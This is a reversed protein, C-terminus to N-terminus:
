IGPSRRSGRSNATRTESRRSRSTPGSRRGTPGSEGGKTRLRVAAHLRRSTTRRFAPRRDVDTYFTSFHTGLIEDAEYGKIREAGSNWTRVRGEPGLMFIAYEDTADVLTRFQEDSQRGVETTEREDVSPQWWVRGSGGVNKTELCGHDVLRELREYTSRRGPDVREAVETTTMPAGGEDFLALTERLADTLQPVTM